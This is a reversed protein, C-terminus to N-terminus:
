EALFRPQGAKAAQDDLMAAAAYNLATTIIETDSLRDAAPPARGIPVRAGGVRKSL